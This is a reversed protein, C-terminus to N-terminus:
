RRTTPPEERAICRQGRRRRPRPARSAGSSPDRDGLPSAVFRALGEAKSVDQDAVCRVVRQRLRHAHREVDREGIARQTPPFKRCSSSSDHSGGRPATCSFSSSPSSDCSSAARAADASATRADGSTRPSAPRRAMARARPRVEWAASAVPSRRSSYARREFLAPLEKGRLRCERASAPARDEVVSPELRPRQHFARVRTRRRGVRHTVPTSVALACYRNQRSPSSKPERAHSSTQEQKRVSDRALHLLSSGDGVMRARARRLRTATALFADHSPQEDARGRPSANPPCLFDGVLWPLDRAPATPHPTRAAPPM